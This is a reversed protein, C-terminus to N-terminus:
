ATASLLVTMLLLLGGLRGAQLHLAESLLWCGLLMASVSLAYFPNTKREGPRAPSQRVASVSESALATGYIV